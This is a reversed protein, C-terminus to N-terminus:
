CIMEVSSPQLSAPHSTKIYHSIPVETIIMKFIGDNVKRRNIVVIHGDKEVVKIIGWPHIGTVWQNQLQKLDEGQPLGLQTNVDIIAQNLESLGITEITYERNQQEIWCLITKKQLGHTNQPCRQKWFQQHSSPMIKMIENDDTIDLMTLMNKQQKRLSDTRLQPIVTHDPAITKFQLAQIFAHIDHISSTVVKFQKIFNMVQSLNILRNNDIQLLNITFQFVHALNIDKNLQCYQLLFSFLLPCNNTQSVLYFGYLATMPQSLLHGNQEPYLNWQYQPNPHSHSSDTTTPMILGCTSHIFDSTLEDLLLKFKEFNNQTFDSVVNASRLEHIFFWVPHPLTTQNIFKKTHRLHQNLTQLVQTGHYNGMAFHVWDLKNIYQIPDKMTKKNTILQEIEQQNLRHCLCDFLSVARHNLRNTKATLASSPIIHLLLDM